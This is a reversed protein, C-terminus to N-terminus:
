SVWERIHSPPTLPLKAKNHPLYWYMLHKLAGQGAMKRLKRLAWCFALGVLLGSGQHSTGLGILTPILLAAAEDKTFILWRAPSDLHHLLLHKGRERM